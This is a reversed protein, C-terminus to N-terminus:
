RKRAVERKFLPLAFLGGGAASLLARLPEADEVYDLLDAVMRWIRSSAGRASGEGIRRPERGDQGDPWTRAVLRCSGCSIMRAVLDGVDCCRRRRVDGLARILQLDPHRHVYGSPGSREFGMGSSRTWGDRDPGAVDADPIFVDSLIGRQLSARREDVRHQQDQHGRRPRAGIITLLGRASAAPRTPQRALVVIQHARQDCSTWVKSGNLVWSTARPTVARRPALDSGRATESMGIASYLRRGRRDAAVTRRRQEIQHWVLCPQRSQRSRDLARRRPRRQGAAGRHRRLPAPLWARPRRRRDPSDPRRLRSQLDQRSLGPGLEGAMLRRCFFFFPKKKAM